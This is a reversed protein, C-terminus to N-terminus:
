TASAAMTSIRDFVANLGGNVATLALVIGMAIMGVILGYEIATAGDEDSLFRCLGQV